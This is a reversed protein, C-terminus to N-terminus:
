DLTFLLFAARLEYVLQIIYTRVFRPSWRLTKAARRYIIIHYTLPMKASRKVRYAHGNKVCSVRREITVRVPLRAETFNRSPRNKEDHRIHNRSPRADTNIIILPPCLIERPGYVRCTCSVV